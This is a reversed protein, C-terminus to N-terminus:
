GRARPSDAEFPVKRDPNSLAAMMTNRQALLQGEISGPSHSAHGLPGGRHFELTLLAVAM